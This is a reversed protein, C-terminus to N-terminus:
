GCLVKINSLVSNVVYMGAVDRTTSSVKVTRASEEDGIIKLVVRREMFVLRCM